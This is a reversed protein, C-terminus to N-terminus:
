REVPYTTAAAYFPNKLQYEVLVNVVPAKATLAMVPLASDKDQTPPAAALNQNVMASLPM